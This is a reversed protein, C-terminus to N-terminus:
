LAASENFYGKSADSAHPAWIRLERKSLDSVGPQESTPVARFTDRDVEKGGGDGNGEVCM